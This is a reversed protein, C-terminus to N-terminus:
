TSQFVRLVRALTLPWPAKVEPFAGLYRDMRLRFAFLASVGLLVAVCSAPVRRCLSSNWTFLCSSSRLRFGGEITGDEEKGGEQALDPQAAHGPLAPLPPLPVYPQRVPPTPPAPKPLAPVQPLQVAQEALGRFLAMAEAAGRRQEPTSSQQLVEVHLAEFAAASFDAKRRDHPVDLEFAIDRLKGLADRKRTKATPEM